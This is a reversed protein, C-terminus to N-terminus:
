QADLAFLKGLAGVKVEGQAAAEFAGAGLGTGSRFTM